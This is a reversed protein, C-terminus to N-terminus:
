TDVELEKLQKKPKKSPLWVLSKDHMDKQTLTVESLSIIELEVWIGALSMIDKSWEELRKKEIM